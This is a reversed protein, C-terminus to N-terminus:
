CCLRIHRCVWMGPSEVSMAVDVRLQQGITEPIAIETDISPVKVADTAWVEADLKSDGFM